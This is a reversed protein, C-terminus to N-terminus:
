RVSQQNRAPGCQQPAETSAATTVQADKREPLDTASSAPRHVARDLHQDRRRRRQVHVLPHASVWTSGTSSTASASVTLSTAWRGVWCWAWPSTLLWHGDVGERQHYVRDHGIVALSALALVLASSGFLGFIGGDNYSKAIRVLEGIIPTPQNGIGPLAYPSALQSTARRGM